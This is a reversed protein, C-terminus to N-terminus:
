NGQKGEEVESWWSDTDVEEEQNKRDVEVVGKRGAEGVEQELTNDMKETNGTYGFGARPAEVEVEM